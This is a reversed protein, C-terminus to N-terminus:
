ALGGGGRRATIRVHRAATCVHPSANGEKMAVLHQGARPAIMGMQTLLKRRTAHPV